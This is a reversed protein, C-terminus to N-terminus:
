CHTLNIKTFAIRVGERLDETLRFRTKKGGGWRMISSKNKEAKYVLINNGIKMKGM